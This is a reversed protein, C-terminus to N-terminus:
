QVDYYDAYKPNNSYLMDPGFNEIDDPNDWFTCGQAFLARIVNRNTESMYLPTAFTLNQGKWFTFKDCVLLTEPMNIFKNVACGFRLMYDGARAIAGPNPHMVQLSVCMRGANLQFGNGTLAGIASPPVLSANKKQTAIQKWALDKNGEAITNAMAKNKDNNTTGLDANEIASLYTNANNTNSVMYQLNNQMMANNYDFVAQSGTQIANVGSQIAGSIDGKYGQAVAIGANAVTGILGSYANNKAVNNSTDYTAKAIRENSRSNREAQSRGLDIQSQTVDAALNAQATAATYAWDAADYSYQYNYANNALTLQANNNYIVFTPLNKFWIGNTIDAGMYIPTDVSEGSTTPSFIKNNVYARRDARSYEPYVCIMNHPYCLSYIADFVINGDTCQLEEPKIEVPTQEYNSLMFVTYPYCRLSPLMSYRSPIGSATATNWSVDDFLVAHNNLGSFGGLGRVIASEGGPTVSDVQLPTLVSQPAHGQNTAQYRDLLVGPVYYMAQIGQAIWSYNKISASFRDFTTPKDYAPTDGEANGWTNDKYLPFLIVGCGSPINGFFDSKPIPLKPSTETGINQSTMDISYVVAVCDNVTSLAKTYMKYSLYTNGLDLGEDGVVVKSATVGDTINQAANNAFQVQGQQCLMSTIKFYPRYTTFVDLELTLVTNLPSAMEHAKIFYCYRTITDDSNYHKVPQSPNDVILYNYNFAEDYPVELPVPKDLHIYSNNTIVIKSTLNDFWEDRKQRGADGYGWEIADQTQSWPVVCLTITSGAQWFDETNIMYRDDSM